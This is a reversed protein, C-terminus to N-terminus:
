GNGLAYFSLTVVVSLPMSPVNEILGQWGIEGGHRITYNNLIAKIGFPMITWVSAQKIADALVKRLQEYKEQEMYFFQLEMDFSPVQGRTWLPVAQPTGVGYLQAVEAHFSETIDPDNDPVIFIMQDGSKVFLTVIGQAANEGVNVMSRGSGNIILPGSTTQPPDYELEVPIPVTPQNNEPPKTGDGITGVSSKIEEFKAELSFPTTFYWLGPRARPLQTIVVPYEVSDVQIEHGQSNIYVGALRVLKHIKAVTVTVGSATVKIFNHKAYISPIAYEGKKLGSIDSTFKFLDIATVDKYPHKPITSQKLISGIDAIGTVPYRFQVIRGALYPRINDVLNDFFDPVVISSLVYRVTILFLSAEFVYYDGVEKVNIPVRREQLSYTPPEALRVIIPDVNFKIVVNQHSRLMNFTRRIIEEISLVESPQPPAPTSVQNSQLVYNIYPKTVM